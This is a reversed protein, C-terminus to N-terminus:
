RRGELFFLGQIRNSIKVGAQENAAASRIVTFLGKSVGLNRSVASNRNTKGQSNYSGGLWYAMDNLSTSMTGKANSLSVIYADNLTGSQESAYQAAGADVPTRVNAPLRQEARNGALMGTGRDGLETNLLYADQALESFLEATEGNKLNATM